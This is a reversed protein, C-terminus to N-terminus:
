NKWLREPKEELLQKIKALAEVSKQLDSQTFATFSLHLGSLDGKRQWEASISAPWPLKRTKDQLHSEVQTTYPYRLDHLRRAWAEFTETESKKLSDADGNMLFLECVWELTQAGQQRTFPSHSILILLDNIKAMESISKLPALERVQLRKHHVWEFFEIPVYLLLDLTTLLDESPRMQYLRLLENFGESTLEEFLLSKLRALEALSLEPYLAKILSPLDSSLEVVDGTDRDFGTLQIKNWSFVPLAQPWKSFLTFDAKKTCQSLPYIQM